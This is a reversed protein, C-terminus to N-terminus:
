IKERNKEVKLPKLAFRRFSVFRIRGGGDGGSDGGDGGGDGCDRGGDGGGDGGDGGGDGDGGDGGGGRAGGGWFWSAKLNFGVGILIIAAGTSSSEVIISLPM